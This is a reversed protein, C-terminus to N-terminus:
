PAEAAEEAETTEEEAAEQADAEAVPDVVDDSTVRLTIEAELDHLEVPIPYEGVEEIRRGIRIARHPLDFGAEALAESIDNQAVGGYLIGQENASREIELEFGELKEFVKELEARERALQEQVEKRREELRKVNAETPVTALGRPLLYNRAYGPRVDVVDGVIGLNPVNETLLLTVDKM